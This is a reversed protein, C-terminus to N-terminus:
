NGEEVGTSYDVRCNFLRKEFFFAFFCVAGFRTWVVQIILPQNILNILEFFQPIFLSEGHQTLQSRFVPAVMQATFYFFDLGGPAFYLM